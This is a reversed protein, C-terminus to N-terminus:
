AGSTRVSSDALPRWSGPGASTPRPPTAPRMTWATSRWSPCSSRTSSWCRVYSRPPMPMLTASRTTLSRSQAIWSPTRQTASRRRPTCAASSTSSTGVCTSGPRAGSRPFGSRALIVTESMVRGCSVAGAESCELLPLLCPPPGCMRVAQRAESPEGSWHMCTRRRLVSTASLGRSFARTGGCNDRAADHMLQM